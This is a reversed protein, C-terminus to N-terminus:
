ARKQIGENNGVSKQSQRSRFRNSGDDVVQGFRRSVPPPAGSLCSDEFGLTAIILGHILFILSVSVRVQQLGRQQM